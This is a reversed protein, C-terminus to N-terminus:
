LFNFFHMPYVAKSAFICFFTLKLSTFKLEYDVFITFFALFNYILKNCAHLLTIQVYHCVRARSAASGKLVM